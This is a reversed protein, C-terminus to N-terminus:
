KKIELDYFTQLISIARQTDKIDYPQWTNNRHRDFPRNVWNLYIQWSYAHHHVSWQWSAVMREKFKLYWSPRSLHRDAGIDVKFHDAILKVASPIDM